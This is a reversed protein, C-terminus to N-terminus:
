MLNHIPKRLVYRNFSGYMTKEELISFGGSIINNLSNSNDPSVTAFAEEAGLKRSIDDRIKIFFSQIGYGHYLPDVFTSDYTVSKLCRKIDYGLSCGLNRPSLRNSIMVTAAVLERNHFAGVCYDLILSELLEDKSTLVYTKKDKINEYVRKQLELIDDLENAMCRRISLELEHDNKRRFLHMAGGADYRPLGMPSRKAIKKNYKNQYETMLKM